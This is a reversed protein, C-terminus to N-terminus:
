TFKRSQGDNGVLRSPQPNKGVEMGKPVGIVRSGCEDEYDCKNCSELACYTTKDKIGFLEYTATSSAFVVFVYTFMVVAATVSKAFCSM